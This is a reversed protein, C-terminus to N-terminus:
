SIEILAMAYTVNDMGAGGFETPVSVGMLGMEGLKRCIEKPHRHTEDLEAAIPKIEENVFRTVMDKVMQQEETPAFNM